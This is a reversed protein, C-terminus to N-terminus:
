PEFLRFSKWDAKPNQKRWALQARQLAVALDPEHDWQRYLEAFFAPVLRDDAPRTSAVVERSGALLFAHALGLSEVPTEASSRGTECASLIVWAPVRQLALLDGLTLQTERALLLSSEWGGFGSFIGHGAYHLLDATALGRRVAEASAAARTLEEIKWHRSGSALANRVTRIEAIAGPLDNRPDAVLLSRMESARPPAASAPLDLGYVVPVSALLVDRGFPLAHFDVSQLPGSALVRLRRAREIRAQFPLLLRKSLETDALSDPPLAFRHATVTTGDAAFGVWDSALPHYALILEGPPPLPPAERPQTGPDGLALFAQDLLKRADEAERKIAAREPRVQDAPLKWDNSARAELATRREQYEALLSEWRARRDPPLSALRDAHALQRLVRSRAHRTVELAEATRGQALLLGIHLSVTAQRAAVFNGRGEHVPIQLSQEDLLAEAQRLIGLARAPDGLAQHSRASGFAARLRGDFSGTESALQELEDFLRLAKVPKKERLAIRGDLDLWWLTQLLPPHSELGRARALADRAQPLRGAQLHALALNVLMNAKQEVEAYKCTDYTALAEALLPAPDGLGEGAEHALLASWGQNNLLQGEECTNAAQSRRKLREFIEASERYRGIACLLLALKEEALWQYSDLKVREAVEVAQEIEAMASRYDGEKEALLGRYYAVYYRFDAPAKPSPRLGDLMERAATFRRGQILKYLPFLKGTVEQLMDGPKGQSDRSAQPKQSEPRALPLLWRARAKWAEGLVELQKAAAPIKISYRRGDQVAEGATDIRRGDARIEIRTEPPAGVWLRLERDAPLVCVPGPALVAKCGTYEVELPPPRSAPRSAPGTGNPRCSFLLGALALRAARRVRHRDGQRRM